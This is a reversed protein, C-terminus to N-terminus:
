VHYVYFIEGCGEANEHDYSFANMTGVVGNGTGSTITINRIIAFGSSWIDVDYDVQYAYDCDGWFGIYVSNDKTIGTVSINAWESGGDNYPGPQGPLMIDACGIQSSDKVACGWVEVQGQTVETPVSIGINVYISIDVTVTQTTLGSFRLYGSSDFQVYIDSSGPGYYGRQWITVSTQPAESNIYLTGSRTTNLSNIDLRVDFSQIAATSSEEPSCHIWDIDGPLPPCPNLDPDYIGTIYWGTISNTSLDVTYVSSDVEDFIGSADAWLVHMIPDTVWLYPAETTTFSRCISNRIWGNKNFSMYYKYPTLQELGNVTLEAYEACNHYVFPRFTSSNVTVNISSLNSVDKYLYLDAIVDADPTFELKDWTISASTHGAISTFSSPNREFVGNFLSNANIEYNTLITGDATNTTFRGGPDDRNVKLSSVDFILHTDRLNGNDDLNGIRFINASAERVIAISQKDDEGSSYVTFPNYVGILVNSFEIRAYNKPETGYIKSPTSYYNIEGTSYVNDILYKAVDNNNFYRNYKFTDSMVEASTFYGATSLSAYKYVFEGTCPDLIEYVGGNLDIFLDGTNYSRGEPLVESSGVTSACLIINGMIATNITATQTRADFDTFYIGLGALGASGDDGRTGFGPRGPAYQFKDM